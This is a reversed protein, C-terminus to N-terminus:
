KPVPSPFVQRPPPEHNYQRRVQPPSALAVRDPLSDFVCFPVKCVCFVPPLLPTHSGRSIGRRAGGAQGAPIGALPALARQSKYHSVVGRIGIVHPSPPSHPLAPLSLPKWCYALMPCCNISYPSPPATPLTQPLSFPNHTQSNFDGCSSHHIQPEAMGVDVSKSHISPSPTM